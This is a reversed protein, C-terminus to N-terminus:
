AGTWGCAAASSFTASTSATDGSFRFRVRTYYRGGCLRRPQSFTFRIRETRQEGGPYSNRATATAVARKMGWSSWRAGSFCTHNAPCYASPKYKNEYLRPTSVAPAVSAASVLLLLAMAASAATSRALLGGARVPGWTM